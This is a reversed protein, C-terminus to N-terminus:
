ESLEDILEQTRTLAEESPDVFQLGSYYYRPVTDSFSSWMRYATLSIRRDEEDEKSVGFWIQIEKEDPIPEKSRIQMGEVHLDEAYGLLVGPEQTFVKLRVSYRKLKRNETLKHPALHARSQHDENWYVLSLLLGAFFLAIKM